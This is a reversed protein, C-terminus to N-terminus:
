FRLSGFSPRATARRRHETQLSEWLEILEARLDPNQTSLDRTESRDESLRYLEWDGGKVASIKWDGRRLARNDEHSWWLTRDESTVDAFCPLLSRGPRRPVDATQVGALELATPWIDIVHGPQQRWEGRARIGAPWHVILPTATGGEHVWTKHYRFPTNCATSWGPGLCLHSAWSGMPAQPDHGDGRVMIEASAGNDSLFFIVTNDLQDMSKLQDVVRGIQQDMRDIMAAHIAMKTAQFSQQESTLRDWPLPRNLEGEGLQQIADPFAYPPGVNPMVESLKGPLVGFSRIRKWRAARISDWGAQYRDRYRDIDQPLAHLPFHPATFALYHFFPKGAHDRHHARMCEVAHDGLAITAYFGTEKGVAPLKEDDKWHLTPNFFRHQDKLYYSRDFGSAIPMGDLHWKGTHYTRYGAESLPECLLPAWSPRIGRGGSKIGPVSDRRVSHPYYGTLLSARTPWCRGTNYFQAFRLGGAALANLQPTEVEGGYCGLDSFGLDDAMILLINPREAPRTDGGAASRLSGLLSLLVIVLRLTNSVASVQGRNMSDFSIPANQPTARQADFM